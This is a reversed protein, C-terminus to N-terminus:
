RLPATGWDAASEWLRTKTIQRMRSGDANMVFLDAAAELGAGPTRSTAIMSGDPSFSSGLYSGSGNTLNTLGTGDPHVKYLDNSPESRFLIWRGDPSWDPSNGGNLEWPTVRLLSGGDVDVTFVASAQRDLDFREFVIKRGDASWGPGFDWSNGPTRQTVQRLGHGGVNVIWVGASLRLSDVYAANALNYVFAVQTGDPSWAPQDVGVCDTNPAGTGSGVKFRCPVLSKLGKGNPKVTYVVDCTSNLGDKVGGAPCPSQREFAIKKGNPSWDPERDDVGHRPRTVQRMKTGDPKVTFISSTTKGVDLYRRFVIRGNKGPTTASAIVASGLIAVVALVVLGVAPKRGRM